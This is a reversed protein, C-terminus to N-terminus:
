AQLLLVYLLMYFSYKTSTIIAKQWKSLETLDEQYDFATNGNRKLYVYFKNENFYFSTDVVLRSTWFGFAAFSHRQILSAWDANINEKGFIDFYITPLNYSLLAFFLSILLSKVLDFHKSKMLSHFFGSLREAIPEAESQAEVEKRQKALLKLGDEIDKLNYNKM